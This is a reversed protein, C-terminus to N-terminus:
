LNFIPVGTNMRAWENFVKKVGIRQSERGPTLQELPTDLWVVADVRLGRRLARAVQVGEVVFRRKSQVEAMIARPADLFAQQGGDGMFDDTHIIPRDKVKAAFVRTKGVKPGGAIAIRDFKALVAEFM